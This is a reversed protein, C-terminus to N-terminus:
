IFEEFGIVLMTFADSGSTFKFDLSQSTNTNFDAIGATVQAAVNGTISINGVSSSGTTRVLVSNGATAPTYLYNFKIIQATAPVFSTFSKAVYGTTTTFSFSDAFDYFYIRHSNNGFMYINNLGGGSNTIISGIRRFSDYGKPLLPATSSLSLLTATPAANTSSGIVFVYYSSSVALTGTDLGNAGNVATNLTTATTLPLNIINNSDTAQGVGVLLTTGSSASFTLGYVYGYRPAEIATNQSM